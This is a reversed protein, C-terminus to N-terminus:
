QEKPKTIWDEPPQKGDEWIQMTTRFERVDWDLISKFGVYWGKGFVDRYRIFGNVELKASGRFVSAIERDRFLAGFTPLDEKGPKGRQLVTRHSVIANASTIGNVGIVRPVVTYHFENAETPGENKFFIQIFGLKYYNLQDPGHYQTSDNRLGISDVVVMARQSIELSTRATEASSKAADASEKAIAITKRLFWLQLGGIIVLLATAVILVYDAPDKIFSLPPVSTVNVDANQKDTRTPSAGNKQNTIAPKNDGAPVTNTTPPQHGTAKSEQEGAKSSKSDGPLPKTQDQAYVSAALVVALLILRM